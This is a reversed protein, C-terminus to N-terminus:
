MLLKYIVHVQCDETLTKWWPLCALLPIASYIKEMNTCYVVLKKSNRRYNIIQIKMQNVFIVAVQYCDHTQNYGPTESQGQHISVRNKNFARDSLRTYQQDNDHSIPYASNSYNTIVYISVLTCNSVLENYRM